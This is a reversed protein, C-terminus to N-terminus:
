VNNWRSEWPKHKKIREAREKSQSLAAQRIKEKVELRKSVNEDGSRFGSNSNWKWGREKATKRSSEGAKKRDSRSSFEKQKEPDNFVCNIRGKMWGDPIPLDKFHYKSVIGDNIWMRNSVTDGGDGSEPRLNAWENSEVVNFEDSKQLAVKKFDDYNESEYILETTIDDGHKKLHKKWLVGSGKYNAYTDGDTKTYCLYKLGTINHTKIMLKHNM